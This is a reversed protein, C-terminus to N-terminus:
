TCSDSAVVAEEIVPTRLQRPDNHRIAIGCGVILDSGRSNTSAGRWSTDVEGCRAKRATLGDLEADAGRARGRESRHFSCGRPPRRGFRVSRVLWGFRRRLEHGARELRKSCSHRPASRFTRGGAETNESASSRPVSWAKKLTRSKVVGPKARGIPEGGQVCAPKSRVQQSPKPGTPSLREARM